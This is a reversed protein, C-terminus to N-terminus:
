AFVQPLGGSPMRLPQAQPTLMQPPVMQTPPQPIQTLAHRRGATQNQNGQVLHGESDYKSHCQNAFHCGKCCQSCVDPIKTKAGKQAICDKKLHGPKGYGYCVASTGSSGKSAAFATAM